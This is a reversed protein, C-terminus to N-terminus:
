NLAMAFWRRYRSVLPDQEGRLLFIGVMVQRALEDAHTKDAMISDILSKMAAEVEGKRLHVLGETLHRGAPSTTEAEQERTVWRALARVAEALSELPHGFPIIRATELADGPQTLVGFAAKLLSAEEHEPHATAFAALAEPIGDSPWPPLTAHLAQWSARVPDPLSEKLWQLVASRPLAGSFEAIPIGQHFLKVHPISRIQYRSALDPHAETDIKVLTWSERHEAALEDLVPGLMRCPGCWAAWFDAVVPQRFSAEIVDKTFDLGNKRNEM